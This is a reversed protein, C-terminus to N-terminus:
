IERPGSAMEMRLELTESKQEFPMGHRGPNLVFCLFFMWAPSLTFPIVIVKLLGEIQIHEIPSSSPDGTGWGEEPQM